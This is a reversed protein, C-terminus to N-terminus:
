YPFGTMSDVEVAISKKWYEAWFPKFKKSTGRLIWNGHGFGQLGVFQFSQGPKEDVAPEEGCFRGPFGAFRGVLRAKGEEVVEDAVQLQNEAVKKRLIALRTKFGPPM